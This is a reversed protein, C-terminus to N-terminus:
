RNRTGQGQEAASNNSITSLDQGSLDNHSIDVIYENAGIDNYQPITYSPLGNPGDPGEVRNPSPALGSGVQVVLEKESRLEVGVLCYPDLVKQIGAVAKEADPDIMAAKLADRDPKNLPTGLFELSEVLREVQLVLPQQEVKTVIPLAAADAADSIHSLSLVLLALSATTFRM